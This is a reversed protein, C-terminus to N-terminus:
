IGYLRIDTIAYLPNGVPKKASIYVEKKKENKLIIKIGEAKIKEFYIRNENGKTLFSRYIVPVPKWINEDLYEVEILEPLDLETGGDYNREMIFGLEVMDVYYTKEFLIGYYKDDEKRSGATDWYEEAGSKSRQKKLPAYMNEEHISAFPKDNNDLVLEKHNPFMLCLKQFSLEQSPNMNESKVYNLMCRLMWLAEPQELKNLINLSSILLSGKGCKVEFLLGMSHNRHINDVMRIIPQIGTNDLIVSRSDKLMHWWPYNTYADVQMKEFLKHETEILMGMTGHQERKKFMFWCWFDSMFSSKVSGPIGAQTLEPLLILKEGKELRERVRQDLATVICAKDLEKEDPQPYVWLEYENTYETGEIQLKVKLKYSFDVELDPVFNFEGIEKVKGQGVMCDKILEKCVEHGASDTVYISVPKNLSNEGYNAIVIEAQIKEKQRFTRNKIKLLPVVCNFFQKFSAPDSFKKPNGFADIMGVLATGQGTFDQIGLLSIGALKDSRLAAEIEERYCLMSLRGTVEHFKTDDGAMGHQDLDKKFARLNEPQLNGTYKEIESYDPYVQFQGVEFSVVPMSIDKLVDNYDSITNPPCDNIFGHNGGYAGRWEDKYNAQAMVFDSDNNIGKEGYWVNSGEAYLRDPAIQRMYRCLESMRERKHSKLENGWTLAVYSPHNGYAKDIAVAEKTYYWYDEDSDFTEFTWECLEPQMYIGLRDAVRFAADPPCWSHFRVYNIGYSQYTSLLREWEKEEMPAYGTIPFLACNAESRVFIVKDNIMFHRSDPSVQFKRMGFDVSRVQSGFTTHLELIVEYRDPKFEDWTLYDDGLEYELEMKSKGPVIVKQINKKVGGTVSIVWSVSQLIGTNQFMDISIIMSKKEFDPCIHITDMSIVPLIRIGIKGVIGNWNTQTHATAMHSGIIPKAPMNEFCNDVEVTIKNIGQKVAKTIDFEQPVTLIDDQGVFQENVWVKAARTREMFFLITEGDQYDLEFDREYVAYGEYHYEPTLYMIDEPKSKEIGKINKGQEDLSGPLQVRQDMVAEGKKGLGLNWAGSLTLNRGQNMTEPM